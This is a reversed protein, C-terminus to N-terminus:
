VEENVEEPQWEQTVNVMTVMLDSAKKKFDPIAGQELKEKEKETKALRIQDRYEEQVVKKAIHEAVLHAVPLPYASSPNPVWRNGEKKMPPITVKRGAFMGEFPEKLVSSITATKIPDIDPVVASIPVVAQSM